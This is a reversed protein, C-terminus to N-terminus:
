LRRDSCLWGPPPPTLSRCGVLCGNPNSGPRQLLPSIGTNLQLHMLSTHTIFNTQSVRYPVAWSCLQHPKTPSSSLVAGALCTGGHPSPVTVAEARASVKGHARPVHGQWFCGRSDQGHVQWHGCRKPALRPGLHQLLGPPHVLLGQRSPPLLEFRALLAESGTPPHLQGLAANPRSFMLPRGSLASKIALLHKQQAEEQACFPLLADRASPQNACADGKGLGHKQAAQQPLVELRASCSQHTRGVEWQLLSINNIM